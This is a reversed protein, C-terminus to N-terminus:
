RARPALDVQLAPGPAPTESWRMTRARGARKAAYLAADARELLVEASLGPSWAAVGASFTVGPGDDGGFREAEVAARMRDLAAVAEDEGADPHLLLFEDGGFRAISDYRRVQSRFIEAVRKLVHDGYLHGRRDNCSKFGDLDIMALTPRTEGRDVEEALRQLVYGRTFLGTFDDIMAIRRIEQETRRIRLM